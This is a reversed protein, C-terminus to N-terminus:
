LLAATVLGVHSLVAILASIALQRSVNIGLM